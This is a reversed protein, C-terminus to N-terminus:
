QNFVVANTVSSHKKDGNNKIKIDLLCYPVIVLVKGVETKLIYYKVSNNVSKPKFLHTIKEKCDGHHVRGKM